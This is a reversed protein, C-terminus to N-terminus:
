LRYLRREAMMSLPKFDRGNWEGFFSVPQGGAISHAMWPQAGKPLPVAVGDADVIQWRDKAPVIRADSIPMPFEDIWPNLALAEAYGSLGEVIKGEPLPAAPADIRSLLTARMPLGSPYFALTGQFSIGTVLPPDFPTGAVAFALVMAWQRNTVGYVWTRQVRVQEENWTTQGAVIWFDEQHLEKPLEERKVPIGIESRVDAQAAEPLADIKAFAETLLYLRGLRALAREHWAAGSNVLKGVELIERRVGPAQADAMRSAFGNWHKENGLASHSLGQRVTDKLFLSCDRLGDAIRTDRKAARKQQAEVDVPGKPAAQKEAREARKALWEDVWSPRSGTSISGGAFLLMLGLGHKCPFKRSPCSCKFTPGSLHVATQYPTAASGKAEGWVVEDDYGTSVWKALSAIGRGAIASSADPALALVQDPTWGSM